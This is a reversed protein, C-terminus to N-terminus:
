SLAKATREVIEQVDRCQQPLIAPKFEVKVQRWPRILTAGRPLVANVGSLRVPVVPVKLAWAILAFTSKLEGLRGDISRTGEPFIVVKRGAKLVQVVAQIASSLQGNIDMSIVNHRRAFSSLLPRDAFKATAFYCTDRRDAKGLGAAVYFSDLLSSHNPALICSGPPINERGALEVSSVSRLMGAVTKLLLVHSWSTGPLPVPHQGAAAVIDGMWKESNGSVASANAAFQRLYESLQGVTPYDALLTDPFDQGCCENLYSVLAVKGLSDVGLDLEFHAGPTIPAELHQGALFDRIMKFSGSQAVAKEAETYQPGNGDSSARKGVLLTPLKHRRIKGLRTRPLPDSLFVCQLIRKYSVAQVNYPEIVTDTLSEQINVIHRSRLVAMDPVILAALGSRGSTVACEAILGNGIKMLKEEIENPNINKGNDLVIIEKKRGTVFLRGARDIYGLDGTHMWGDADFMAATEEPRNYYGQMINSGKVTIEGDQLKVQNCAIPIGVSGHSARGPPPAAIIPSTESMGYGNLLEFGLGLMGKAIEPPLAAGGCICYRLAGGMRQHIVRFVRHALRRSGILCSLAFLSRAILSSRMKAKVGTLIMEYLRPVGIIFTVHYKEMTSMITPGDLKPILVVQAGISLPVLMTGQLPLIHHLPLIVIIRDEANFYPTAVTVADINSQLNGFSLMAGKPTGTTGSTYIIVGTDGASFEGHELPQAPAPPLGVGDMRLPLARCRTCGALAEKVKQETRATCWVAAPTCDELIHRIEDVTSEADVPVPIMRRYWIAYFASYWALCNEGVIAVRPASEAAAPLLKGFCQASWILQHYTYCGGPYNVAPRDSDVLYRM